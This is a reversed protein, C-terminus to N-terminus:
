CTIYTVDNAIRHKADVIRSYASKYESDSPNLSQMRSKGNIIIELDNIVDDFDLGWPDVYMVPNAACYAYWNMGDKIPDLTM